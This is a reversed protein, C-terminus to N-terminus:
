KSPEPSNAHPDFAPLTHTHLVMKGQHYFHFTWQTGPLAHISRSQGEYGDDIPKWQAVREVDGHPVYARLSKVIVDREEASIPWCVAGKEIEDALKAADNM